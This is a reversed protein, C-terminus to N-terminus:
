SQKRRITLTEKWLNSVGEIAEALAEVHKIRHHPAVMKTKKLDKAIDDLDEIIDELDRIHRRRNAAAREINHGLGFKAEGEEAELAQIVWQSFNPIDKMREQLREPISVSKIQRGM